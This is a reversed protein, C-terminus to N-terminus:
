DGVREAGASCKSSVQSSSDFMREILVQVLGDGLLREVLGKYPGDAQGICATGSLGM